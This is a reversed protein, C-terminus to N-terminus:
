VYKVSTRTNRNNIKFMYNGAPLPSNITIILVKRAKPAETKNGSYSIYVFVVETFCKQDKIVHFTNEQHTNKRYESQICLNAYKSMKVCHEKSIEFISACHYLLSSTDNPDKFSSEIVAHFTDLYPTIDPGYKGTYLGFVPFYPGSIVGYKSAKWM